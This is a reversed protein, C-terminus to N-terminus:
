SPPTSRSITGTASFAFGRLISIVPVAFWGLAMSAHGGTRSQGHSGGGSLRGSYPQGAIGSPCATCGSGGDHRSREGGVLWSSFSAHSPLHYHRQLEGTQEPQDAAVEAQRRVSALPVM